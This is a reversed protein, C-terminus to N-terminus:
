YCKNTHKSRNPAPQHRLLMATRSDARLLMVRNDAKLHTALVVKLLIAVKDAKHLIVARRYHFTLRQAAHLNYSCLMLVLVFTDRAGPHLKNTSIHLM